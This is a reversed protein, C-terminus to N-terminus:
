VSAATLCAKRSSMESKEVIQEVVWLGCVAFVCYGKNTGGGAGCSGVDMGGMQGIASDLSVSGEALLQKCTASSGFLSM